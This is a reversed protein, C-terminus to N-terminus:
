KIPRLSAKYTVIHCVKEIEELCDLYVLIGIYFIGLSYFSGFNM